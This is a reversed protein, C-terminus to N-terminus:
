LRITVLKGLPLSLEFGMNGGGGEERRSAILYFSIFRREGNKKKSYDTGPHTKEM